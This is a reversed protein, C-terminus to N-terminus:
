FWDPTLNTEFYYYDAWFLFAFITVGLVFKIKRNKLYPRLGFVLLMIMPTLIPLLYRGQVSQDAVGHSLYDPYNKLYLLSLTYLVSIIAFDIYIRKIQKLQSTLGVLAALILGFYPLLFLRRKIVSLHGVHNFTRIFMLRAWEYSYQFVNLLEPTEQLSSNYDRRYINNELCQSHTLTDTCGPMFSYYIYLNRIYLHVNLIFVVILGTLLFLNKRSNAVQKYRTLLLIGLILALPLFSTKTLLGLGLTIGLILLDSFKQNRAFRTYFYMSIAALMNNLSDYNVSAAIFSFIPINIAITLALLSSFKDKFLKKATLYIFVCTFTSFTLSILRLFIYDDLKVINLNLLKGSVFHYLYPIDKVNGRDYTDTTNEIFLTTKSYEQSLEIHYHEDPPVGPKITFAFEVGKLVFFGLFLVLYIKPELFIKKIQKYSTLMSLLLRTNGSM